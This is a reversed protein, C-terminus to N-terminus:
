PLRYIVAEDDEYAKEFLGSEELQRALALHDGDMFVFRSEFERMVAVPDPSEGRTFAEYRRYRDPDTRFLFTPDLGSVYRHSPDRYFLVPFDDWDAHMVVAHPPVTDRLFVTAREYRTFRYPGLSLDGYPQVYEIRVVLLITLAAGAILAFPAVTRAYARVQDTRMLAGYARDSWHAVLLMILPALYEVHRRSRVTLAAFLPVVILLALARRDIRRERITFLVAVTLAAALALFLPQLDSLLNDVRYPYWEAGVGIAGRYGVVAIQVIQEWYFFLNQPFFPNVVLGLATGGWLALLTKVLAFPAPRAFRPSHSATLAGNGNAESPARATDRSAPYGLEPALASPVWASVFVAAITGCVLLAPWSGHTWVYLFSLLALPLARRRLAFTIGLVLLLVGFASAKALNMRFVFPTVTTLFLAYLPAGRIGLSRLAWSFGAIALAAFTATAVKMGVLPGLATIFPILAVHYLFHHDAFHSGLTTFPLWPFERVPGGAATLEAMKLHFFSDPDPFVPARQLAVFVAILGVFLAAEQLYPMKRFAALMGHAYYL